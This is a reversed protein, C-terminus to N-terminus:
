CARCISGPTGAHFALMLKEVGVFFVQLACWLVVSSSLAERVRAHRDILLSKTLFTQMLKRGRNYRTIAALTQWMSYLKLNLWM